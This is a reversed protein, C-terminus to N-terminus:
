LCESKKACNKQECMKRLEEEDILGLEFLNIRLERRDRHIQEATRTDGAILPIAIAFILFITFCVAHIICDTVTPLKRLTYAIGASWISLVLMVITASRLPWLSKRLFQGAASSLTLVGAALLFIPTFNATKLEQKFIDEPIPFARWILFTGLM